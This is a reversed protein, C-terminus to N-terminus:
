RRLLDRVANGVRELASPRREKTESSAAKQTSKKESVVAPAPEPSVTQTTVSKKQQPRYQNDVQCYLTGDDINGDDITISTTYTSGKKCDGYWGPRWDAPVFGEPALETITYAGEQLSITGDATDDTYRTLKVVTNVTMGETSTGTVAFSFLDATYGEPYPGSFKKELALTVSPGAGDCRFSPDDQAGVVRLGLDVSFSDTQALNGLASGDCSAAGTATNVSLDGACWLMGVYKTVGAPFFSGTHADALAHPVLTHLADQPTSTGFLPTEGPEYTHDGDDLWGFFEVGRSLEGGLVGDPDASSEPETNGNDRDALNAFDLCAWADKNTHLSISSVGQDGPM